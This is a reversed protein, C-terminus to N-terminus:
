NIYENQRQYAICITGDRKPSHCNPSIGDSSCAKSANYFHIVSYQSPCNPISIQQTLSTSSPFCWLVIMLDVWM